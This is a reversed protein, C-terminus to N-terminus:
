PKSVVQSVVGACRNPLTMVQARREAFGKIHDRLSRLQNPGSEMVLGSGEPGVGLSLSVLERSSVKACALQCLLALSIQIEGAQRNQSIDAQSAFTTRAECREQSNQCTDRESEAQSNPPQKARSAWAVCDCLTWSFLSSTGIQAGDHRPGFNEVLEAM